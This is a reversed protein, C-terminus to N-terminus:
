HVFFVKRYLAKYTSRWSDVHVKALGEADDANAKRVQMGTGM